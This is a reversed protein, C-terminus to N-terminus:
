VAMQVHAHVMNEDKRKMGETGGGGVSKPTGWLFFIGFSITNVGLVLGRLRRSRGSAVMAHQRRQAAERLNVSRERISAEKDFYREIQHFYQLIVVTHAKFVAFKSENVLFIDDPRLTAESESGGEPM